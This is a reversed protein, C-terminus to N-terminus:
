RGQDVEELAVGLAVDVEGAGESPLGEALALLRERARRLHPTDPGEALEEAIARAEERPGRPVPVDPILGRAEGLIRGDPLEWRAITLRLVSGDEYRYDTQVTGKGHTAQGVIRARGLAQLAGAVIEAASATREDVLAVLPGDFDGGDDRAV